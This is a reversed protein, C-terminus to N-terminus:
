SSRETKASPSPIQNTAISAPNTREQDLHLRLDRRALPRHTLRLKREMTRRARSSVADRPCPFEGMSGAPPEYVVRGANARGLAAAGAAAGGVVLPAAVLPAAVLAAGGAVLVKARRKKRLLMKKKRCANRRAVRPLLRPAWGAALPVLLLPLLRAFRKM